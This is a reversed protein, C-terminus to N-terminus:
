AYPSLNFSSVAFLVAHPRGHYISLLIDVRGRTKNRHQTDAQQLFSTGRQEM